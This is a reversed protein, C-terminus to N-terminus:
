RREVAIGMMRGPAPAVTRVAATLPLTAAAAAEATRCAFVTSMVGSSALSHM